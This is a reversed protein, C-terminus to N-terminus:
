QKTLINVWIDYIERLRGAGKLRRAIGYAYTELIGIPNLVLKSISLNSTSSLVPQQFDVDNKPKKVMVWKLGPQNQEM